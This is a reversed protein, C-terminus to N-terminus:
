ASAIVQSSHVAPCSKSKSETRYPGMPQKVTMSYGIKLKSFVSNEMPTPSIEMEVLQQCTDCNGMM